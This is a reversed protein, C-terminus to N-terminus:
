THQREEGERGGTKRSLQMLDDKVSVVGKARRGAGLMVTCVKLKKKERHDWSKSGACVEAPGTEDGQQRSYHKQLLVM